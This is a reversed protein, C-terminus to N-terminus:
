GRRIGNLEQLANWQRLRAAAVADLKEAWGMTSQQAIREQNLAHAIKLLSAIELDPLKTGQHFAFELQQLKHTTLDM